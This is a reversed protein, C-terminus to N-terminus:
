ANRAISLPLSTMVSHCIPTHFYLAWFTMELGQIGYSNYFSGEIDRLIKVIHLNAASAQLNLGHVAKSHWLTGFQVIRSKQVSNSRFKANFSRNSHFFSYRGCSEFERGKAQLDSVRGSYWLPKMNFLPSFQNMDFIWSLKWLRDRLDIAVTLQLVTNM